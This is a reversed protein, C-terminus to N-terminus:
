LKYKEHLAQGLTSAINGEGNGIPPTASPNGEKGTETIFGKYQEIVPKSLEEWDKITGDEALEMKDLDFAKTLLPIASKNFNASELASELKSMKSKNIEKTEVETKFNGHEIVLDDYNKKYKIADKATDEMTKYDAELTDYKIQLDAVATTKRGYQENSVNEKGIGAKISKSTKEAVELEMGADLLMQKIDM